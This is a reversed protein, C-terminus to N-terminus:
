RWGPNSENIWAYRGEKKRNKKTGSYSGRGFQPSVRTKAARKRKVAMNATGVTSKRGGLLYRGRGANRPPTDPV